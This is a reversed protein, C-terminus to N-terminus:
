SRWIPPFIRQQIEFCSYMSLLWIEFQAFFHSLMWFVFLMSAMHRQVYVMLRPFSFYINCVFHSFFQVSHVILVFYSLLLLFSQFSIMSLLLHYNSLASLIDFIVNVYPSSSFTSEHGICAFNPTRCCIIDLLFMDMSINFPEVSVYFLVSGQCIIYAFAMYEIVFSNLKYVCREQFM